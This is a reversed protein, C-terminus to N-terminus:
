TYDDNALVNGFSRTGGSLDNVVSYGDGTLSVLRSPKAAQRVSASSFPMPRKTQADM